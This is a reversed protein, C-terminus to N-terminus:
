AKHYDNILSDPDRGKFYIFKTKYSREKSVLDKVLAYVKQIGLFLEELHSFISLMIFVSRYGVESSM